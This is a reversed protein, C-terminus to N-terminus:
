GGLGLPAHLIPRPVEGRGKHATAVVRDPYDHAWKGQSPRSRSARMMCSPSCPIGYSPRCELGADRPHHITSGEYNELARELFSRETWYDNGAYTVMGGSLYAAPGNAYGELYGECLTHADEADGDIGFSGYVGNHMIM